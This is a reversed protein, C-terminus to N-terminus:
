KKESFDVIFKMMPRQKCWEYLESDITEVYGQIKPSICSLLEQLEDVYYEKYNDENHELLDYYSICPINYGYQKAKYKAADPNSCVYAANPQESIIRMLEKTKGNGRGGLIKLM